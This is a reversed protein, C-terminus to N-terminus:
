RSLIMTVVDEQRSQIRGEGEFKQTVLLNKFSGLKRVLIAENAFTAPGQRVAICCELWHTTGSPLKQLASLRGRANILHLLAVCDKKTLTTDDTRMETGVAGCLTTINRERFRTAIDGIVKKLKGYVYAKGHLKSLENEPMAVYDDTRLLM